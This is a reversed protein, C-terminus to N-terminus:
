VGGLGCIAELSGVLRGVVLAMFMVHLVHLLLLVVFALAAFAVPHVECRQLVQSRARMDM